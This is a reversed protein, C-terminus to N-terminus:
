AYLSSEGTHTELEEKEFAAETPEDKKVTGGLADVIAEIPANCSEGKHDPATATIKGNKITVHISHM